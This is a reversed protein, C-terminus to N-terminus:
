LTTIGILSKPAWDFMEIVSIQAIGELSSKEIFHFLM